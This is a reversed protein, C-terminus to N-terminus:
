TGTRRRFAKSMIRDIRRSVYVLGERWEKDLIIGVGNRGQDNAGSYVLKCGEGIERSKNGKWRTEQVCLVGIKRREMVDALERGKGTLTGVNLTGVRLKRVQKKLRARGHRPLGQEAVSNPRHIRTDSEPSWRANTQTYNLSM